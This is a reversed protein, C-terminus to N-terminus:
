MEKSERERERQLSLNISNVCMSTRVLERKRRRQRKGKYRSLGVQQLIRGLCVTSIDATEHMASKNVASLFSLLKTSAESNALLTRTSGERADVLGGPVAPDCVDDVPGVLVPDVPLLVFDVFKPLLLGPVPALPL